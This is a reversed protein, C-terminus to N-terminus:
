LAGFYLSFGIYELQFQHWTTSGTSSPHTQKIFRFNVKIVQVLALDTLVKSAEEYDADMLIMALSGDTLEKDKIDRGLRHEAAFLVLLAEFPTM